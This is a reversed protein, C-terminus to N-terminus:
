NQVKGEFGQFKNYQVQKIKTQQHFKGDSEADAIEREKLSTLTSLARLGLTLKLLM